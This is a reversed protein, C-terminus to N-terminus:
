IVEIEINGSALEDTDDAGRAAAFTCKEINKQTKDLRVVALHPEVARSDGARALFPGHDKLLKAQQRPSGYRRVNFQTQLEFAYRGSLPQGAGIFEDLENSQVSELAV